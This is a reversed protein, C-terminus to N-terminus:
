RVGLACLVGFAVSLARLDGRDLAPELGIPGMGMAEGFGPTRESRIRDLEWESAFMVVGAPLTRDTAKALSVGREARYDAQAQRARARMAQQQSAHTIVTHAGM